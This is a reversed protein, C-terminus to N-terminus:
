WLQPVTVLMGQYSRNFGLPMQAIQTSEIIRGTDTRDTQLAPTESTVTVVESIEGTELRLDVRITTNVDVRINERITKKFGTLEGEVRYIGDKINPFSYVGSENTVTSAPINTGQDTITVTASALNGAASITLGVDVSVAPIGRAQFSYPPAGISEALPITSSCARCDAKLPESARSCPLSLPSSELM